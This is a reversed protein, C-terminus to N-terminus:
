VRPPGAEGSKGHAEVDARLPTNVVASFILAAAVIKCLEEVAYWCDLVDLLVMAAFFIGAVFLRPLLGPTTFAYRRWSWMAVLVAPVAYMMVIVDDLRDAIGDPDLGLRANIAHDLTEHLKFMDDASALALSCGFTAWGIRITRPLDSIARRIAAFAALALMLVSILTGPKGEGFLKGSDQHTVVGYVVLLLGVGVNAPLMWWCKAGLWRKLTGKWGSLRKPSRVLQDSASPTSPGEADGM